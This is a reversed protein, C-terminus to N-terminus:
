LLIQERILGPDWVKRSLGVEFQAFSNLEAEVNLGNVSFVEVDTAVYKMANREQQTTLSESSYKSPSLLCEVGTLQQETIIPKSEINSHDFVIDEDWDVEMDNVIEFNSQEEIVLQESVVM